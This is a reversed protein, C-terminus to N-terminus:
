PARGFRPTASRIEAPWVIEKRGDQWQIVMDLRKVQIGTRDVAFRGLVTYLDLNSLSERLYAPDTRGAQVIASALVEGAAYAAAAQYSPDIGFRARFDAVFARSRPYAFSDNPEWISSAFTLDALAGAKERWEPLAPGITAFFARPTWGQRALAGRVRLAEEMYGAVVVLEVGAARARRLADDLSEARDLPEDVAIRLRLFPAWKRTGEAIDRSFSDQAALLAISTLGAEYALRLMGQTYRSAPTLIGFLNRYGHRYVEDAAAGPALMPIGAEEIIPAVASTLDSSYPAVFVDFSRSDVFRRYIARAAEADSADDEVVLEVPRGLVGGAGNVKDRWLELARQQMGAPLSYQGSLGLSVGIRIPGAAEIAWARVICLSALLGLLICAGRVGRRRKGHAGGRRLARMANREPRDIDFRDYSPRPL